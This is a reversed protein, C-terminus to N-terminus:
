LIVEVIGRRTKDRKIQWGEIFEDVTQLFILAPRVWFVSVGIDNEARAHDFVAQRPDDCSEVMFDDQLILIIDVDRPNPEGTVYSGYIIFRQLKGTSKAIDFVKLLRNSVEKRRPTHAGFRALVEISHLVIFLLPSIEKLMLFDPLPM